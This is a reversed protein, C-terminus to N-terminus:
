HFREELASLILDLAEFYIRRYAEEPTVSFSSTGTGVEFRAPAGNNRPVESGTISVHLKKPAPSNSLLQLVHM